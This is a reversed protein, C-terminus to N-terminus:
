TSSWGRMAAGSYGGTRLAAATDLRLGSEEKAPGHCKVCHQTLIPQVDRVYDVPAATAPPAAAASSAFGLVAVLALLLRRCPM